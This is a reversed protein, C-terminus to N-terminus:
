VNRLFDPLHKGVRLCKGVVQRLTLRRLLDRIRRRTTANHRQDFEALAAELNGEAGIMRCFRCFDESAKELSFQMVRSKNKLFLAINSNVTDCYDLSVEQRNSDPSLGLLMVTRYVAIIGRSYRMSLSRAVQQSDRTLHVYIADDGYHRELRGLLWSLRNDAEIHHPPYRFRDDGLFM